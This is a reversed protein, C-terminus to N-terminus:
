TVLVPRYNVRSLFSVKTQLAFVTLSFVVVQVCSVVCLYSLLLSICLM